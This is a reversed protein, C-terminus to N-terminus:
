NFIINKIIKPLKFLALPMFGLHSIQPLQKLEPLNFSKFRYVLFNDMKQVNSKDEEMKISLIIVNNGYKALHKATYYASTEVGGKHPPFFHSIILINM